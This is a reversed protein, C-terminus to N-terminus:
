NQVSKTQSVINQIEWSIMSHLYLPIHQFNTWSCVHKHSSEQMCFLCDACFLDKHNLDYSKKTVFFDSSTFQSM